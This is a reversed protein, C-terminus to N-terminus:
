RRLSNVEAKTLHRWKGTPLDGLKVDGISVRKLKQIKLDLKECMKRIQRNRGEHLEIMLVTSNKNQKFVSVCAPKTIYGDIDTPLALAEVTEDPLVGCVKVHYVKPKHFKPHMLRNAFEGDNTLLLLGESQMDLRGIPYVREGVDGVLEAVTTRGREDNMTTVVGAPKNLMIYKKEVNRGILVGDCEIVDNEPSIKQGIVAIEGNVKVRGSTIAEEAARRSMIGQESLYKHLRMEEEM